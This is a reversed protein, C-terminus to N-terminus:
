LVRFFDLSAVSKGEAFVPRFEQRSQVISSDGLSLLRQAVHELNAVKLPLTKEVDTRAAAQEAERGPSQARGDVGQIVIRLRHCAGPFQAGPIEGIIGLPRHLLPRHQVSAVDGGQAFEVHDIGPADEMVRTLHVLRERVYKRGDCGTTLEEDSDVIVLIEDATVPGEHLTGVVLIKKCPIQQDQDMDGIQEGQAPQHARQGSSQGDFSPHRQPEVHEVPQAAIGELHGLRLHDQM